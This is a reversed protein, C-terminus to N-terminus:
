EDDRWYGAHWIHLLGVTIANCKGKDVYRAMGTAPIEADSLIRRGILAMQTWILTWTENSDTAPGTGSHMFGPLRSSRYYKNVEQGDTDARGLKGLHRWVYIWEMIRAATVTSRVDTRM